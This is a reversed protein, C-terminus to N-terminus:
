IKDQILLSYLKCDGNLELNSLRMIYGEYAMAFGHTYDGNNNDGVDKLLQEFKAETTSIAGDKHRRISCQANVSLCLKIFLFSTLLVKKM